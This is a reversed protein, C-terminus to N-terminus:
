EDREAFARRTEGVLNSLLERRDVGESEAEFSLVVRHAAVDGFLEDVDDFSVRARGRVAARAKAAKLLAIAARPSAGSLVMRRAAEPSSPSPHTALVLRAVYAKLSPPVALEAHLRNWEALVERTEGLEAPRGVPRREGLELISVLDAFSPMRFDLKMFFRDVQAEPLPYTGELEIPNQTAIVFFPDPLTRTEGLVSVRREEMAELFASQTKPTARNIEDGLVVNTFIPGEFFRFRRVGTEDQELINSGIVDLPMLDPTFQVRRFGLGLFEAYARALSTKGLGPAGELLVHGGSLLAIFLKELLEPCGLVREGAYLRYRDYFDRVRALGRELENSDM